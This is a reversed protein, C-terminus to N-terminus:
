AAAEKGSQPRVHYIAIEGFLNPLWSILWQRQHQSDTVARRRIELNQEVCLKEFDKCTCLHINPTNYWKFPLSRSMPMHGFFFLYRRTNWYGFNPFTVIAENGIRLMEELAQYPSKMQQFSQSMIVLDFSKDEIRSLGADLDNQIVPVGKDICSLISDTNIEVGLGHVNRTDRLHALLEGNGCGLDLVRAGAPVADAITKLDARM